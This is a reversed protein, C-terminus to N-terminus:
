GKFAIGEAAKARRDIAAAGAQLAAVQAKAVDLRAMDIPDHRGPGRFTSDAATLASDAATLYDHAGHPM